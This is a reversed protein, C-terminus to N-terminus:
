IGPPARIGQFVARMLRGLDLAVADPPTEIAGDFPEIGLRLALRNVGEPVLDEALRAFQLFDVEVQSVRGDTIWVDLEVPGDPATSPDPLFQGPLQELDRVIEIVGRLTDRLPLRVVYHDGADDGGVAEVEAKRELLDAIRRGARRQEATEQPPPAGLATGLQGFGSLAVWKGELAPRLFGFGSAQAQGLLASVARPDQGFTELLHAVDARAYVTDRLFRVELADAGAVRVVAEFAVDLPGEGQVAKISVGSSLIKEADTESLGGGGSAMAQLSSVDSQLSLELELGPLEGLARVGQVVTGKPDRDAEDSACAVLTLM